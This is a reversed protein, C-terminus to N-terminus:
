SIHCPSEVYYCFSPQPQASVASVTVRVPPEARCRSARGSEREGCYFASFFGRTDPFLTRAKRSTIKKKTSFTCIHMEVAATPSPPPAQQSSIFFSFILRSVFHFSNLQQPITLNYKCNPINFALVSQFCIKFM